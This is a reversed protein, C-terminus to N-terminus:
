KVPHSPGRIEAQQVDSRITEELKRLTTDPADRLACEWVVIVRWGLATLAAISRTDRTANASIKAAWFETRTRPVTAYRCGDHGHWFCGHVFIAVQWRTLVLDPKGPLDKRVLRFRFGRSHLYRRVQLEPKTDRARISAMMRSRVAVPVIDTM